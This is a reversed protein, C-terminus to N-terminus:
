VQPCTLSLEYIGDAVWVTCGDATLDLADQISNAATAWNTYPSVPTPNDDNVYFTYWPLRYIYVSGQDYTYGGYLDEGDDGDAGILATDGSVSVSIGFYDGAAADSATLKQQESWVSASRVFVYASGSSTGDDDDGYAGILATDGSVSVSYGFYDGAAGTGTVEPGLEAEISAILPDIMVPYAAGADAIFFELGTPTPKMSAALMKGKADWVQLKTYSLVAEGAENVFQLGEESEQVDLGDVRVPIRLGEDSSLADTKRQVIYGHELGEPKNHYWEILGDRVYEIQTGDQRVELVDGETALSLEGQWDRGAHGSLLRVGDELFRARIKQGPNSALYFAGKNEPMTKQHDSLPRIKRRAESFAKWLSQQETKPLEEAGKIAPASPTDAVQEEELESVPRTAQILEESVLGEEQMNQTDAIESSVSPTATKHDPQRLSWGIFIAIVIFLLSGNNKKNKV